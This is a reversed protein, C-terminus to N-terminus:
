WRRHPSAGPPPCVTAARYPTSSAAIDRTMKTPRMRFMASRRTTTASGADFTKWCAFKRAIHGQLEVGCCLARGRLQSLVGPTERASKTFRTTGQVSPVGAAINDTSNRQGNRPVSPHQPAIQARSELPNPRTSGGAESSRSLPAIPPMVRDLVRHRRTAFAWRRHLGRRRQRCRGPDQISAARAGVLNRWQLEFCDFQGRRPRM